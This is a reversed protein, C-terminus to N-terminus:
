KLTVNIMWENQRVGIKFLTVADFYIEPQTKMFNLVEEKAKINDHAEDVKTKLDELAQKFFLFVDREVAQEFLDYQMFLKAIISNTTDLYEENEIFKKYQNCLTKNQSIGGFLKGASKLLFQSPTLRLLINEREVKVVSTMRNVDREWDNLILFDGELQIVEEGYLQNFSESIEDLFQKSQLLEQRSVDIWEELSSHIRPLVQDNVYEQIRKNMEDNLQLHIKRFDSDEKVLDGCSRLLQPIRMEMEEIIDKKISRYTRCITHAKVEENERLQNIAGNLKKVMEENWIIEDRYGNEKEIRNKLLYSIVRQIVHLLKETRKEELQSHAQLSAFLEQMAQNQGVLEYKSSFPIVVAEPIHEAIKDQVEKVVEMAEQKNYITDLKTLVFTIPLHKNNQVIQLIIDREQVTFPDEADLVFILKDALPLFESVELEDRKVRMGPTDMFTMGYKKLLESPIAVDVIARPSVDLEHNIFEVIDPIVTESYMEQEAVVTVQPVNGYKIRVPNSTAQEFLTEGLLSNIFSSKGTGSVGMVLINQKSLDLIEQVFWRMKTEIEVENTAAWKSISQFLHLSDQLIDANQACLIIQKKSVEVYEESISSPYFENWTLLASHAWLAESSRVIKSWNELYAPMFSVIEKLDFRGTLFEKFSENFLSSISNWATSKETDVIAFLQNVIEIWGIYQQGSRYSTWLMFVLKEFRIPDVQYVVEMVNLFYSPSITKTRGKEVYQILIDFWEVRRTRLSENVALEVANADDDNQEFFQRAIETINQYDPHLSVALKIYQIALDLKEEEVYIQFLKLAIETQLVLHDTSISKYTEIATPLLNLEFYADGVNKMAWPQLENSINEWKFIAAEYDKYHYYLEGQAFRIYSLDSLEKRNEELFMEGLLEIPEGHKDHVLLTEYYTKKSLHHDTTM